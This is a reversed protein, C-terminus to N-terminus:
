FVEAPVQQPHMWPFVYKLWSFFFQDTGTLTAISWMFIFLAFLVVVNYVGGIKGMWEAEGMMDAVKERYRMMYFSSIIGITSLIIKLPSM